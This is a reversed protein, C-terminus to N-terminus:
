QQAVLVQIENELGGGVKVSAVGVVSELQRKIQEEAYIRLAKIGQNTLTEQQSDKVKTTDESALIKAGGLGFRM